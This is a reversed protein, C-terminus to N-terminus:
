WLPCPRACLPRSNKETYRRTRQPPPQHPLSYIIGNTACASLLTPWRTFFERLKKGLVPNRRYSRLLTEKLLRLHGPKPPTKPHLEGPNQTNQGNQRNHGGHACASTAAAFRRHLLLGGRRWSSGVVRSAITLSHGVPLGAQEDAVVLGRDLGHDLM